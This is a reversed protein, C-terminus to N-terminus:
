GAFLKNIVEFSRNLLQCIYQFKCLSSLHFGLFGDRFQILLRIEKVDYTTAAESATSRSLFCFYNRRTLSNSFQCQVDLSDGECEFLMSADQSLKAAEIVHIDNKQEFTTEILDSM